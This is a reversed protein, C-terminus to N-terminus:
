WVGFSSKRPPKSYQSVMDFIRENNLRRELPRARCSHPGSSAPLQVQVGNKKYVTTTLPAVTRFRLLTEPHLEIQNGALSPTAESASVVAQPLGLRLGQEGVPLLVLSQGQLQGEM